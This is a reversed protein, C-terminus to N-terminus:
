PRSSPCRRRRSTRARRRAARGLAAHREDRDGGRAARAHLLPDERQHLQRLGDARDLVQVVRPQAIILTCPAGSSPRRARSSRSGRRRSRRRAPRAARREGARADDLLRRALLQGVVEAEGLRVGSRGGRRSRGAARAARRVSARSRRSKALPRHPRAGAARAARALERLRGSSARRRADGALELPELLWSSRIALSGLSSSIQRTPRARAGRPGATCARSRRASGRRSRRAARRGRGRRRRARDDGPEARKSPRVTASIPWWFPRSM